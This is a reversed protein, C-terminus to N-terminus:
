KFFLHSINNKKFSIPYILFNKKVLYSKKKNLFIFLLKFDFLIFFPFPSLPLQTKKKKKDNFFFIFYFLIKKRGMYCVRCNETRAVNFSHHFFDIQYKKKRKIVDTILFITWALALMLRSKPIHTKKKM